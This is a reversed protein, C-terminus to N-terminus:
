KKCSWCPFDWTPFIYENLGRLYGTLVRSKSGGADQFNLWIILHKILQIELINRKWKNQLYIVMSALRDTSYCRWWLWARILWDKIIMIIIGIVVRFCWFATPLFMECNFSAFLFIVIYTSSCHHCHIHNDVNIIIIIIIFNIIILYFLVRFVWFTFCSIYPTNSQDCGPIIIGTCLFQSIVWKEKEGIGTNNIKVLNRSKELSLLSPFCTIKPTLEM